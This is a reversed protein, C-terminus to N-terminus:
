EGIERMMRKYNEKYKKIFFQSIFPIKVIYSYLTQVFIRHALIDKSGEQIMKHLYQVSLGTSQEFEKRKRKRMERPIKTM